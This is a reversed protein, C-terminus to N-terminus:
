PNPAPAELAAREVRVLNIGNYVMTGVGLLSLLPGAILHKHQVLAVGGWIMLPGVVVVDAIRVWQAKVPDIM